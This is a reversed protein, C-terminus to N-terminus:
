PTKEPPKEVVIKHAVVLELQKALAMQRPTIMQRELPVPGREFHQISKEYPQWNLDGLRVLSGLQQGGSSDRFAKYILETCYIHEDDMRYRVDYPRGVYAQVREMTAPIHKRHASKLRYIAFGQKRGRFIFEKLPTTEVARYAEFVVWKGDQKGVIGCHSFPSESVGEIANVLRSHPLSQFLLDGEKPSYNWYAIYTPGYLLGFVVGAILLCVSVMVLFLRRERRSLSEPLEASRASTPADPTVPVTSM